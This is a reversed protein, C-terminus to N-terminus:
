NCTSGELVTVIGNSCSVNATGTGDSGGQATSDPISASAGDKIAGSMARCFKSDGSWRVEQNACNRSTDNCWSAGDVVWTGRFQNCRFAAQGVMNPTSDSNTDNATAPTNWAAATLTASCASRNSSGGATEQYWTVVMTPCQTAAGACTAVIKGGAGVGLTVTQGPGCTTSSFDFLHNLNVAAKADVCTYSGLSNIETAVQGVPCKVEALDCQGTGTNWSAAAGLAECMTKKAKLDADSIVPGCAKITTGNVEAMFPIRKIVRSAKGAAVAREIDFDQGVKSYKRGYFTIVLESVSTGMASEALRIGNDPIYFGEAYQRDDQLLVEFGSGKAIQLTDLPVGAASRTKGVLMENCRTNNSLSNQIISTARNVSAHFKLNSENNASEELVKMTVLSVGGMMAMGMLLEFLTAGYNNLFRKRLYM